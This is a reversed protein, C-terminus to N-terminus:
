RHQLQYSKPTIDFTRRFAVSFAEPNRYGVAQAVSAITTGPMLLLQKAQQMQYHRLYGFVTTGFVSRFGQKLKRDNLGVQHALELLTPPNAVHNLL